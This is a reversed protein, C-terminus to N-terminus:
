LNLEYGTTPLAVVGETHSYKDLVDAMANTLAHADNPDYPLKVNDIMKGDVDVVNIMIVPRLKPKNNIEAYAKKSGLGGNGM